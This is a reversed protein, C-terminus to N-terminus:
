EIPSIRHVLSCEHPLAASLLQDGGLAPTPSSEEWQAGTGGAPLAGPPLGTGKRLAGGEKVDWVRAEVEELAAQLDSKEQQVQKRTKEVEQLNKSMEAIQM